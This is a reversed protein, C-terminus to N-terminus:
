KTPLTSNMTHTVSMIQSHVEEPHYISKMVWDGTYTQLTIDGFKLLAAQLGKIHYNISQVKDFGVEAVRRNFFGKQRIDILRQDTVIYVSYHWGVWHYFWYIVILALAILPLKLLSSYLPGSTILDLPLISIMLALMGFILPRRLVVPHQRFVLVVREEAHQGPFEKVPADKDQNRKM